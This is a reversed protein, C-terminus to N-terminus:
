EAKEQATLRQFTVTWLTSHITYWLGGIVWSNFFTLPTGLVTPLFNFGLNLANEVVSLAVAGATTVLWLIVIDFLHTRLLQRAATLSAWAGMQHLLNYRFSLLRFWITLLGIPLSICASCALCLTLFIITQFIHTDNLATSRSVLYGVAALVGLLMTLVVVFLPFLILTDLVVLRWMGTLAQQFVAPPTLRSQEGNAVGWILGAEALATVLWVVLLVVLLGGLFLLANQTDLIAETIDAALQEQNAMTLSPTGITFSIYFKLIIAGLAGLFGLGWLVWHTKLIHWSQAFIRGFDM